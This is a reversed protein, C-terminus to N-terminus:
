HDKPTESFGPLVRSSSRFLHYNEYKVDNLITEFPANAKFVEGFESVQVISRSRSISVSRIPCIYSTEGLIVPGYEIMIDSHQLPLRWSLGARMTFRLIAGSASDVAIEGYTPAYTSFKIQSFDVALCCYEVKFIPTDKSINYRFVALPGGVGKEWRAWMLKSEPKAAAVLVAALIPGFAGETHLSKNQPIKRIVTSSLESVDEQGHSVQVDAKAISAPELYHDGAATKWAGGPDRPPEVYLTTNREASLNPLIRITKSVYDVTRQMIQRQDAISPPQLPLTEEAPPAFFVSQDAVATLAQKAKKGKLMALWKALDSSSLRETLEMGNLRREAESDSAHQLEDISERLEAVTVDKADARAQDYYVPEDYYGSRTHATLGPRGVDVKLDHYEDVVDTRPPDFTITYFTSAQAVQQSILDSADGVGRLMGGGSQVALVQLAVNEFTLSKESAVGAVFNQYPFADEGTKRWFDDVWVGIRAERLRTSLETVTDFLHQWKRNQNVPWGNGVWFLLKREPTRREEIAISGLAILPHPLETWGADFFSRRTTPTSGYPDQRFPAGMDQSRWILRPEKREAIEKSLASGDTSPQASAFLGDDGIRYVTVPQALHGGNQLLFKQVAQRMEDLHESPLDVEDMVLIVEVPSDPKSAAGDFAQFTVINRPQDDDLLTLDKAGLGAVPKGRQDTVVVDLKMLGVYPDPQYKSQDAPDLLQDLQPTTADQPTPASKNTGSDRQKAPKNKPKPYDGQQPVPPFYMPRNPIPGQASSSLCTLGIALVALRSWAGPFEAM